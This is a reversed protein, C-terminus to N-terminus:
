FRLSLCSLGGDMKQFESMDLALTEYGQQNLSDEFRTHGAAVLVVDNIRLCNAAYEDELDVPIINFRELSKHNALSNVAVIDTDGIYALGSKLHLLTPNNRIDIISSTFGLDDLLVSLQEAGEENTRHSLGIFFHDGVECIDGGDVTGPAIISQLRPYFHAVAATISIIEGERSPAGPRTIIAGRDTLIAADEVFTSDPFLDDPDLVTVELGCSSLADCYALHQELAKEFSPLGLGSTTLGAAFNSSPPRVIANRFEM